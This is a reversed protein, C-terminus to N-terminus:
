DERNSKAKNSKTLVNVSSFFKFFGGTCGLVIGLLKGVPSVNFRNDVWYGIFFFMIVSLALQFGLTLFPAFERFTKQYESASLENKKKETPLQPDM